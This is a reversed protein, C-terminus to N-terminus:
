NKEKEINSYMVKRAFRSCEIKDRPNIKLHILGGHHQQIGVLSGQLRKVIIHVYTQLFCEGWAVLPDVM